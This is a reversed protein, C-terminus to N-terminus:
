DVSMDIDEEVSEIGAERKKNTYADILWYMEWFTFFLTLLIPGIIVGPLGFAQISGILLFFFILPHFKLQEGFVVPKVLNELLLYWALCWIAVIAADGFQGLAVLYLVAPVWVFTTGIVPILSFIAAISGWLLPMGVGGIIFGVGVMSGQLVMILLNGALLIKIVQRLRDIVDMEIDDPFPLIRYFPEELRYGDKFLFFLILLMFFFDLAFKISFSLLGTLNSFFNLSMRQLYAVIKQMIETESINLIGILEQAMDSKHLLQQFVLPDFSQQLFLYFAYTQNALAVLLIFLPILIVAILFIILVTSCLLRIKLYKLIYDLLPKLGMYFIIAFLFPWFYYRFIYGLSAIVILFLVLFLIKLRRNESVTFYSERQEM